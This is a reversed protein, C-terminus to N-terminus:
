RGSLDRFVLRKLQLNAVNEGLAIIAGFGTM